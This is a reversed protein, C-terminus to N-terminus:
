TLLLVMLVVVALTAVLGIVGIGVASWWSAIRGGKVRLEEIRSGQQQKTIEKTVGAVVAALVTGSSHKPLVLGLGILALLTIAGYLFTLKRKKPEDFVRFNEAILWTASAPGGILCSVGVQWPTYVRSNVPQGESM